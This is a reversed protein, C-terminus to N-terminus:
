LLYKVAIFRGSKRNSPNQIISIDQCTVLINPNEVYNNEPNSFSDLSLKMNLANKVINIIM